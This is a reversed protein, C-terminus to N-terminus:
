EVKRVWKHMIAGAEQPNAKILTSIQEAIKRSELENEDLEVGAMMAESEDVEGVVDDEVPLRPPLGALEEVSPLAEPRTARRVMYFMLGLAGLVLVGVMASQGWTSSMLNGISATVSQEDGAALQFSGVDEYVGTVVVGPGEAEIIPQVRREIEALKEAQLPQLDADKPEDKNDPNRAKYLAVFFSRPVGISVSIKKIQHGAFVTATQKVVKSPAFETRTRETSESSGTGSGSDISVGANSRVGPEGSDTTQTRSTSENEESELPQSKEYETEEQQQKHIPDLQVAVEVRLGGIGLLNVIKQKCVNEHQRVLEVTETPIIQDPDDVHHAVNNDGDIVTVDTPSMEADGGAVFAAIAEVMPQDLRRGSDLWVTVSATRNLNPDGFGRRPRPSVNVRADRVGRMAKIVGRAYEQMAVRSREEAQENTDWPSQKGLVQEWVQSPDETMLGGEMLVANATMVDSSKVRVQGNVIEAEIGRAQLAAVVENTRSGAFALTTYQSKGAWVLTLLLVALMVVLSLAIIVKKEASLGGLGAHVQAWQRKLFEM